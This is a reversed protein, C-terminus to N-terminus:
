GEGKEKGIMDGLTPESFRKKATTPSVSATVKEIIKIGLEKELKRAVALTPSMSEREIKELYNERENIKEALVGPPLGMKERAARIIKGYGEVIEETEETKRTPAVPMSQHTEEDDELKYIIKKGYACGRCVRMRAGEVLVVAVIGARGCIDCTEEGKM